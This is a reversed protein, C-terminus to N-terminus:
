SPRVPRKTIDPFDPSEHWLRVTTRYNLWQKRTGPMADEAEEEIALLQNAIFSMEAAQWELEVQRLRSPSESWGPFLWIQDAYGPGPEVVIDSLPEGDSGGLYAGDELVYHLVPNGVASFLEGTESALSM